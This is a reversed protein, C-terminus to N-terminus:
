NSSRRSLLTGLLLGVLSWGIMNVLFSQGSFVDFDIGHLLVMPWEAFYIYADAFTLPPHGGHGFWIAFATSVTMAISVVAFYLGTLLARRM